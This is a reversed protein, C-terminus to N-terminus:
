DLAENNNETSRSFRLVDISLVSIGQFSDGGAPEEYERRIRLM